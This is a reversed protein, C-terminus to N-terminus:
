AKGEGLLRYVSARSIGVRAAIETAGLGSAHLERVQPTKARATPQRGRYKGAAKAKAIGDRQRCLMIEREWQAVAGFLTLMLRGTPSQTDVPQGGFDCIRLAVHKRELEAIIGLLDATSRALRDLRTVVLTDGERVFEMAAILQPRVLVSSVHETFIRKCGTAVLISEQVELGATQEWTSTRGYGVLM